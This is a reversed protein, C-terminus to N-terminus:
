RIGEGESRDGFEANLRNLTNRIDRLERRLECANVAEGWTAYRQETIIRKLFALSEDDRITVPIKGADIIYNSMKENIERVQDEYAKKRTEYEVKYLIAADKYEEAVHVAQRSLQDIRQQLNKLKERDEKQEWKRKEYVLHNAVISMPIVLLIVFGLIVQWIIKFTKLNAYALEVFEKVSTVSEMDPVGYRIEGIKTFVYIPVAEFYLRNSYGPKAFLKAADFISGRFLMKGNEFVGVYGNPAYVAFLCIALLVLLFLLTKRAPDSLYGIEDHIKGSERNLEERVATIEKEIGDRKKVTTDYKLKIEDFDNEPVSVHNYTEANKIIQLLAESNDSISTNGRIVGIETLSIEKEQM